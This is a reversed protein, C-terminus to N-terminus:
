ASRLQQMHAVRKAIAPDTGIDKRHFVPGSVQLVAEECATEAQNISAATSVFGIIRTGSIVSEGAREVIGGVYAVVDTPLAPPLTITDGQQPSEPYGNAAVYKCVSAKSSFTVPVQALTRDAIARCVAVFDTELLTLLNLAEPDGFRANYEILKGGKRTAMFGGYLIGQYPAGCEKALAAAVQENMAQAALIDSQQLFPLKGDADTYSGMGGTNPGQDGEYARKHDQAAPMHRLTPGDCFSLLSFEEGELKEEVVFSHGAAVLEQCYSLSDDLSHLHDGWVKVGKGGALGDDKIVHSEPLSRLFDEAGILSDFRRFAPNGAINHKQLLDRTFSKSSEIRALERRPGVVPIAATWLADALGAALPAEPGIVALTPRHQTAFRMVAAVDAINGTTFATCLPLLGANAISGFGMLEPQQPSRALAVAIAHERAGSGVILIRENM